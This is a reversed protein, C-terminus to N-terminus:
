GQFVKKPSLQLSSLDRGMQKLDDTDMIHSLLCGSKTRTVKLGEVTWTPGGGEGPLHDPRPDRVSASPLNLPTVCYGM